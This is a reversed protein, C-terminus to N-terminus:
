ETKESYAIWRVNKPDVSDLYESPIMVVTQRKVVNSNTDGSDTIKLYIDLRGEGAVAQTVAYTISDSIEMEGYLFVVHANFGGNDDYEKMDAMLDDLHLEDNYEEYYREFDSFSSFTRSFPFSVNASSDALYEKTEFPITVCDTNVSSVSFMHTQGIYYATGPDEALSTIAGNTVVSVNEKVEGNDLYKSTVTFEPKGGSGSARYDAYIIGDRRCICVSANKELSVASCFDDWAFINDASDGDVFVASNEKAIDYTIESGDWLLVFQSISNKEVSEAPLSFETRRGGSSSSNGDSVCSCLTLAAAACLLSIIRNSLM